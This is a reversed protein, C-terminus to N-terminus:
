NLETKKIREQVEEEPNAGKNILFRVVDRYGNQCAIHLPTQGDFSEDVTCLGQSLVQLLISLSSIGNYLQVYERVEEVRGIDGSAAAKFLEEVPNSAQHSEFVQRLMVSVNEPSFAFIFFVMLDKEKKEREKKERERERERERKREKVRGGERGREREREREGEREGEERRGERGGERGRERSTGPTLPAGETDLRTLVAPSFTWNTGCVEAIIDGSQIVEIM